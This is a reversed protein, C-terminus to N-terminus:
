IAKQLTAQPKPQPIQVYHSGAGPKKPEEIGETLTSSFPGQPSRLTVLCPSFHFDSLRTRSKSLGHVICDM